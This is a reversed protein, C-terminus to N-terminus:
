HSLRYTKTLPVSPIKKLIKNGYWEGSVVKLTCFLAIRIQFIDRYVRSLVNEPVLNSTLHSSQYTETLPVSPIKELIKRPVMRWFRRKFLSFQLGFM